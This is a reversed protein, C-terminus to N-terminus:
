RAALATSIERLQEATLPRTSAMATHSPAVGRTRAEVPPIAAYCPRRCYAYCAQQSDWYSGDTPCYYSTPPPDQSADAALPALAILLSPALAFLRLSHANM